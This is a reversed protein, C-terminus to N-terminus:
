DHRYQFVCYMSTFPVERRDSWCKLRVTNNNQLKSIGKLQDLIVGFGNVEAPTEEKEAHVLGQDQLMFKRQPNNQSVQLSKNGARAM